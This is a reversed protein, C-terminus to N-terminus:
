AALQTLSAVTKMAARHNLAEKSLQHSRMLSGTTLPMLLDEERGTERWVDEVDEPFLRVSPLLDAARGAAIVLREDASFAGARLAVFDLSIAEELPFVAFFAVFLAGNGFFAEARVELAAGALDGARLLAGAFGCFFTALFAAGAARGTRDFLAFAVGSRM